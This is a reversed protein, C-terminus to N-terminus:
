NNRDDEINKTLTKFNEGQCDEQTDKTLDKITECTKKVM